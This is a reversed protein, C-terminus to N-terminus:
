RRRQKPMHRRTWGIPPWCGEGAPREERDFLMIREKAGSTRWWWSICGCHHCFHRVTERGTESRELVDVSKVDRGCICRLCGMGSMPSRAM